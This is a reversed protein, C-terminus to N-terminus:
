YKTSWRNHMQQMKKVPSFAVMNCNVQAIVMLQVDVYWFKPWENRVQENNVGTM